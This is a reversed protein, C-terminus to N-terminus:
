ANDMEAPQGPPDNVGRVDEPPGIHGQSITTVLTRAHHSHFQGHGADPKVAAGEACKAVGRKLAQFATWAPLLIVM